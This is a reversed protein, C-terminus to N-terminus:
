EAQRASNASVAVVRIDSRKAKALLAQREIMLTTHAEIALVAADVEHMVAITDPGIAPVDFRLDQQPKSVKVVVTGAGGLEGGRRIAASTGEVGEVAFVTGRKVVVSQGIDWRGIEQAVTVGLRIDAWQQTDPEDMTLVGAEPILASLYRTSEIITIGEDELEQAVGRLIVDDKLNPLKSIFALGRADPQINTMAGAKYIGGAMVAQTVGAQQFTSIIKGLEGVRVWTVEPLLATIEAPTEGKHAVAIIEVGEARAAEVFLLPFQGNGAILGLRSM